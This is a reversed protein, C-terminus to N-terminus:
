LESDLDENWFLGAVDLGNDAVDRAVRQALMSRTGPELAEFYQQLEAGIRKEVFMRFVRFSRLACPGYM